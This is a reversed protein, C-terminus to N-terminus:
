GGEKIMTFNGYISAVKGKFLEARDDPVTIVLVENYQCIHGGNQNVETTIHLIEGKPYIKNVEDYQFTAVHGGSQKWIKILRASPKTSNM